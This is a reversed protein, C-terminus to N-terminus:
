GRHPVHRRQSGRQEEDAQQAQFRGLAWFGDAGLAACIARARGCDAAEELGAAHELVAPALRALAFVPTFVVNWNHAFMAGVSCLCVKAEDTEPNMSLMSATDKMLKRCAYEGKCARPRNPGTGGDTNGEAEEEGGAKSAPKPKTAPKAAAKAAPATAASDAAAKAAKAAAKAAPAAETGASVKRKKQLGAVASAAVAEAAAEVSSM